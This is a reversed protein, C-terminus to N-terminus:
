GFSFKQPAEYLLKKQISIHTAVSMYTNYCEISGSLGSAYLLLVFHVDYEISGSAVRALTNQLLEGAAAMMNRCDSTISRLGGRGYFDDLVIQAAGFAIAAMM